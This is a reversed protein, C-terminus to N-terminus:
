LLIHKTCFSLLIYSKCVLTVENAVPNWAIGSIQASTIESLVAKKTKVEWIIFSNDDASSALYYGNPSWAFTIVKGTHQGDLSYYPTYVDARFIRINNNKGPFAFNSGDPNWAVTAEFIADIESKCAFEPLTKICKPLSTNASVDWIKINGNIDSSLLYNGTPHYDVSKVPCTHGEM